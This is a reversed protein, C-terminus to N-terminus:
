LCFREETENEKAWSFAVFVLTADILVLGNRKRM